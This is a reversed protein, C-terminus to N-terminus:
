SRGNQRLPRVQFKASRLREIKDQSERPRDGPISPLTCWSRVVRSTKNLESPPVSYTPTANTPEYELDRQPLEHTCNMDSPCSRVYPV